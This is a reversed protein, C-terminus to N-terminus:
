GCILDIVTNNYRVAYYVIIGHLSV